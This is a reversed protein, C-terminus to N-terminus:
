SSKRTYGCRPQRSCQFKFHLIPVDLNHNVLRLPKGIHKEGHKQQARIQKYLRMHDKTSIEGSAIAEGYEYLNKYGGVFIKYRGPDKVNLLKRTKHDRCDGAKIQGTKSSCMVDKYQAGSSYKRLRRPKTIHHIGQPFNIFGDKLTRTNSLKKYLSEWREKQIALRSM